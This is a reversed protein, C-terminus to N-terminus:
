SKQKRRLESQLFNLADYSGQLEFYVTERNIGLLKNLFGRSNEKTFLSKITIDSELCYKRIANEINMYKPGEVWADWHYPQENFTQPTVSGCSLQQNNQTSM